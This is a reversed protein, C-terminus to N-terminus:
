ERIYPHHRYKDDIASLYGEGFRVRNSPLTLMLHMQLHKEASRRWASMLRRLLTAILSDYVNAGLAGAPSGIRKKAIMVVITLCGLFNLVFIAAMLADNIVVLSYAVTAINALAFLVWTM